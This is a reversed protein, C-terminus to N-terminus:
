ALEADEDEIFVSIHGNIWAALEPVSMGNAICDLFLEKGEEDTAHMTYGHIQLFLKGCIWAIRKNGDAFPQNEALSQMLAAAKLQLTPYAEEGFASQQPRGVASSLGDAYRLVPEGIVERHIAVIDAENLYQM